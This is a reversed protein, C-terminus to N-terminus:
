IRQIKRHARIAQVIEVVLIPLFLTVVLFEFYLYRAHVVPCLFFVTIYHAIPAIFYFAFKRTASIAFGCAWFFPVLLCGWLLPSAFFWSNMINQTQLQNWRKLNSRHLSRWDVFLSKHLSAFNRIREKACVVPHKLCQKAVYTWLEHVDQKTVIRMSKLILLANFLDTDSVLLIDVNIVRHIKEREPDNDIDISNTLILEKILRSAVIPMPKHNQVSYRNENLVDIPNKEETIMEPINIIFLVFAVTFTGLFHQFFKSRIGHLWIIQVFLIPILIYADGKIFPSLALAFGMMISIWKQPSNKSIFLAVILSASCLGSFVDREITGLIFGHVLFPVIGLFILHPYQSHKRMWYYVSTFLVSAWVIAIWVHYSFDNTFRAMLKLACAYEATEGVIHSCSKPTASYFAEFYQIADFYYIGPWILFLPISFWIFCFGFFLFEKVHSRIFKLMLTLM